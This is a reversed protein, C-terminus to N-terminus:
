SAGHCRPWVGNEGEFKICCNYIIDYEYYFIILIWNDMLLLPRMYISVLKPHKNNFAIVDALSKVPSAILDKLYANLSLKFEFNLAIAESQGNIIEDINDIKLDDVVVAGKQRIIVDINDTKL